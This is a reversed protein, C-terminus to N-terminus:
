STSSGKPPQHNTAAARLIRQARLLVPRDVMRGDLVAAGGSSGAEVIRQAEIIEASSPTFEEAVAALQRPHICLKATFGLRRARRTDARVADTDVTEVTVGDIPGPLGAAASALVLAARAPSMVGHEDPAVDLEAALDLHGFALRVVGPAAAIQRADLVGVASEVLAILPGTAAAVEAVAEGDHSKPLMVFLGRESVVRLDAEHWPTGVANIRVIVNNLAPDLRGLNDRAEDKDAHSVADELDVVVIDAGSCVASAFRDPRSAPVFLFTRAVAIQEGNM